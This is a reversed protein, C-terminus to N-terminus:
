NLHGEPIPMEKTGDPAFMVLVETEDANLLQSAETEYDLVMVTDILKGDCKSNVHRDQRPQRDDPSIRHCVECLLTKQKIEIPM